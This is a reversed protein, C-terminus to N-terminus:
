SVSSSSNAGVSAKLLEDASKVDVAIPKWIQWRRSRVHHDTRAVNMFQQNAKGIATICEDFERVRDAFSKRGRKVSFLGYFTHQERIPIRSLLVEFLHPTVDAAAIADVRGMARVNALAALYDGTIDRLTAIDVIARDRLRTDSAYDSAIIQSASPAAAETVDAIMHMIEYTKQEINNSSETPVVSRTLPGIMPILRIAISHWTTTQIQGLVSLHTVAAMLKFVEHQYELYARQREKASARRRRGTPVTEAVQLVAAIEAAMALLDM